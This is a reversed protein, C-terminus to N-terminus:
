EIGARENTGIGGSSIDVRQGAAYGERHGHYTRTRSRRGKRTGGTQDEVFDEVAEDRDRLVIESGPAATSYAKQKEATIRKFIAVTFSEWWGRKFTPPHVGVPIPTLAYEREGQALISSWIMSFREMDQKFGYANVFQVTTKPKAGMVVRVHQQTALVHMLRGKQIFPKRIEYRRTELQEDGAEEIDRLYEESLDYKAMMEFLMARAAAAEHQAAKIEAPTGASDTAHEAMALIKRARAILKSQNM